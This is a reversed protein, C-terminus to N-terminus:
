GSVDQLGARLAASRLMACAEEGTQRLTDRAEPPLTGPDAEVRALAGCLDQLAYNSAAGKLRHALRRREDPGAAELRDLTEPIHALLEGVVRATTEPGLDALDDTIKDLVESCGPAQPSAPAPPAPADDGSLGQLMEILGRPSIPKQLIRRVGLRDREAATDEIPQATLAALVAPGAAEALRRLVEEGPMDPLGLDVLILDFRQAAAAALGAAGTEAETVKCGLRDLYGRAVVRNIPHDEIM